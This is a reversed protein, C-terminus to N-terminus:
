CCALYATRGRDNGTNATVNSRADQAGVATAGDDGVGEGAGALGDMAPEAAVGPGDVLAATGDGDADVAVAPTAAEVSTTVNRSPAPRVPKM